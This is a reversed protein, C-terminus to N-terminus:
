RVKFLTVKENQYINELYPEKTLDLGGLEKEKPGWFVYDIKEKKLFQHPLASFKGAYFESINRRREQFNLISAEHGFYVQNNTNAPIFNGILSSALVIEGEKSNRSLFDFAGREEYTLYTWPKVQSSYIPILLIITTFIASFTSFFLVWFYVAWPYKILSGLWKLGWIATIGVIIFFGKFALVKPPFLYPASFHILLWSLLFLTKEEKRHWFNIAGLIVLPTLLGYSVLFYFPSPPPPYNLTLYPTQRLLLYFFLLFVIWIAFQPTLYFFRALNKKALIALLFYGGFVLVVLLLSYPHVFTLAVGSLASLLSLTRKEVSIAWLSLLFTTLFLAQNLLFHPLHLTQFVTTVPFALDAFLIKQYFLWGIGGGFTILFLSALRWNKERFVFALFLYLAYFFIITLFVSALHYAWPVSLSFLRALHGLFLYLFYIPLAASTPDYPNQYLWRGNFGQRLANLYVNVDWPDYFFYFGVFWFGPPTKLYSWITPMLSLLSASLALVLVLFLEKKSIAPWIFKKM